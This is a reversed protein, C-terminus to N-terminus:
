IYIYNIYIYIYILFFFVHINYETNAPHLQVGKTCWEAPCTRDVGPLRVPDWVVGAVAPKPVAPRRSWVLGCTACSRSTAPHLQIYSTFSCGNPIHSEFCDYCTSIHQFRQCIHFFPIVISPHHSARTQNKCMQTVLILDHDINTLWNPWTGSDKSPMMSVPIASNKPFPFFFSGKPLWVHSHFICPQYMINAKSTHSKEHNEMHHNTQPPGDPRWRVWGPPPNGRHCPLSSDSTRHCAPVAVIQQIDTPITPFTSIQTMMQWWNWCGDAAMLLGEARSESTLCQSLKRSCQPFGKCHCSGWHKECRHGDMAM